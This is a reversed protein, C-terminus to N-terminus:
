HTVPRLLDLLRKMARTVAMRAADPSPKDLAVAMEEYSYQMELRLVIVEREHDKLQVLAEEYRAMREVGIARELPSTREDLLGEPLEGHYGRCQYHRVIDIIRNRACRRFYDMLAGEHRVEFRDLRRMGNLVADQVIDATDHVGRAFSPLRGHAWIRLRPTLRELLDNLADHDGGCARSVLDVTKEPSLPLGSPVASRMPPM